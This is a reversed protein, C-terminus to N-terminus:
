HAPNFLVNGSASEAFSRVQSLQSIEPFFFSFYLCMTM